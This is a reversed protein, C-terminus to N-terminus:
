LFGYNIIYQLMRVESYGPTGIACPAAPSQLLVEASLSVESYGPTGIACPAAPSQPLRCGLLPQAGGEGDSFAVGQTKDCLLFALFFCQFVCRKKCM